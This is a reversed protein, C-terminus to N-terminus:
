AEGVTDLLSSAIADEATRGGWIVFQFAPYYRECEAMALEMLEGIAEADVRDNLRVTHRFMPIGEEVWIAFHGMWLRENLKALLEYIQGMLKNQVRMDLACSFHLASLDESWAFFMGYDCWSGPSEVALETDCRRDYVWEKGSIVEEILDIPNCVTATSTRRLTSSQM